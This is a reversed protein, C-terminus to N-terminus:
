IRDIPDNMGLQGLVMSPRRGEQGNASRATPDLSLPINSVVIEEVGNMTTERTGGINTKTRRLSDSASKIPVYYVNTPNRILNLLPAVALIKDRTRTYSDQVDGGAAIPFIKGHVIMGDDAPDEMFDDNRKLGNRKTFEFIEKMTIRGPKTVIIKQGTILSTGTFQISKSESELHFIKLREADWSDWFSSGLMRRRLLEQLFYPPFGMHPFLDCLLCFEEFTLSEYKGDRFAELSALYNPEYVHRQYQIIKHGRKMQMPTKHSFHSRLEDKDLIGSRDRDIILYMYQLLEEKTLACFSCFSVIFDQFSLRGDRSSSGLQTLAELCPSTLKDPYTKLYAHVEKMSWSGRNDIDYEEFKRHLEVVQDRSINYQCMIAATHEDIQPFASTSQGMFIKLIYFDALFTLQQDLNSSV